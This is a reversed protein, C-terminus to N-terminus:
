HSLHSAQSLTIMREMKPEEEGSSAFDLGCFGGWQTPEEWYHHLIESNRQDSRDSKPTRCQKINLENWEVKLCRNNTLFKYLVLFVLLM